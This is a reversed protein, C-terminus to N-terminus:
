NICSNLFGIFLPNARNPRSKFQPQFQVGIMFKNTPIELSEIYSGKKATAGIVLGHSTLKKIHDLDLEYRNRHRENIETTKYLSAIISNKSLIIDYSGIRMTGDKANIDKTHKI